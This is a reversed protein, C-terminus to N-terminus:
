FYFLTIGVNISLTSLYLNNGWKAHTAKMEPLNQTGNHNVQNLNYHYRFEVSVPKSFLKMNAALGAILGIQSSVYHSSVNSHGQYSLSPYGSVHAVATYNEQANLTYGYFGGLLLKPQINEEDLSPLGFEALIPVQVTHFAVRANNHRLESSVAYDRINAGQQMYLVEARAFLYSMVRYKAFVGANFGPVVEYSNSGRFSNFNIGGKAGIEIQCYSSYSFFLIFCALVVRVIKM